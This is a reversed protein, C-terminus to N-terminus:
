CSFFLYKSVYEHEYLYGFHLLPSRPQNECPNTTVDDFVAVGFSETIYCQCWVNLRLAWKASTMKNNNFCLVNLHSSIIQNTYTLTSKIKTNNQIFLKYTLPLKFNLSKNFFLFLPVTIPKIQTVKQWCTVVMHDSTTFTPWSTPKHHDDCQGQPRNDCM